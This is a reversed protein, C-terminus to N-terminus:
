LHYLLLTQPILSGCTAVMLSLFIVVLQITLICIQLEARLASSSLLFGWRVSTYRVLSPTILAEAGKRLYCQSSRPFRIRSSDVLKFILVYPSLGKPCAIAELSARFLLFQLVLFLERIMEVSQWSLAEIEMSPYPLMLM